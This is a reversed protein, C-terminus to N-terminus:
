ALSYVPCHLYCHLLQYLLEFIIRPPNSTMAENCHVNRDYRVWLSHEYYPIRDVGNVVSHVREKLAQQFVERRRQPIFAVFSDQTDQSKGFHEGVANELIAIDTKVFYLGVNVALAFYAAVSLEFLFDRAKSGSKKEHLPHAPGCVAIRLKERFRPGRIRKFTKSIAILHSAEIFAIRCQELPVFRSLEALSGSIRHSRVTALNKRYETFRTDAHIGM